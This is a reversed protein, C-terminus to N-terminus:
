TTLIALVAAAALFPAFPLHTGRAHRKTAILAVGTLAGLVFAGYLGVVLTWWGVWGCLLGCLAALKVDGFGMGRPVLVHIILLAGFGIAAGLGARELAGWRDDIAADVILAVTVFTLSPFLVIDPVRLVDLDIISLVLLAATGICFAPVAGTPEVRWAVLAWLAACGAEIAPYHWSISDRCDRCKGRLVFWSVVPINDHGAIAAGCTPCASGPHAVSQGRPVRWAVVNLFSGVCLGFVSALAILMQIAANLACGITPMTRDLELPDLLSKRWLM